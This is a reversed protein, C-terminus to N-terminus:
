YRFRKAIKRDPIAQSYYKDGAKKGNDWGLYQRTYKEHTCYRIKSKEEISDKKDMFEELTTDSM